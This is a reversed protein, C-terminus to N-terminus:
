PQPRVVIVEPSPKDPSYDPDRSTLYPGLVLASAKSGSEGHINLSVVVAGVVRFILPARVTRRPFSVYGDNDTMRDENQGSFEVSHNRWQERVVVSTVPKSAEDVIRIKWDPVVTTEFPYVLLALLGAIFACTVLRKKQEIANM